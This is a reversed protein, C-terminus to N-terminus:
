FDTYSLGYGFPYLAKQTMYRYTRGKMSYDTFDPLEETTRYFTVPLKGEPSYDGFLVSALARGGQAGPYWGQIIAPIHEDAWSVALASGSLLVLVVPKGSAYIAELVEQQLGPLNLNPKDGSAFENGEDGEEGELSSDLGMCAIIVDSMECVGKVESMRDNEQGLGSVKPKCLHCGESVLVRVDDGVYDQIGESLTFIVPLLERM